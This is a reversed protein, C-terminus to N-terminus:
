IGLGLDECQMTFLAKRYPQPLSDKLIRLMARDIEFGKTALYMM